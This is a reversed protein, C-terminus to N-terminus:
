RWWGRGVWWYMSQTCWRNRYSSSRHSTSSDAIPASSYHHRFHHHHLLRFTHKGTREVNPDQCESTSPHGHQRNPSYSSPSKICSSSLPDTHYHLSPSPFAAAAVAAIKASSSSHPSPTHPPASHSHPYDPSHPPQPPHSHYPQSPATPLFPTHATRPPHHSGPENRTFYQGNRCSIFRSLLSLPAILVISITTSSM